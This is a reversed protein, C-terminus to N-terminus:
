GQPELYGWLRLQEVIRTAAAPPELTVTEARSSGADDVHLLDRVRALTTGSPTHLHRPRPRLPRVDVKPPRGTPHPLVRIPTTGASLSAALSARRLGAAAGEVSMVAPVPVDLVERRGGDLRRIARIVVPHAEIGLEPSSADADLVEGPVDVQVLGLAQAYGLRAAIFGPVAGTGRDISYDGTIIVDSGAAADALASAVVHGEYRTPADIRTAADAGAALADRLCRDSEPPGLTLVTVHGTTGALRLAIELAARDGLSVGAWRHDPDDTSARDRDVAVWKWCVTIRM